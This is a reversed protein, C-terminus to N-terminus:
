EDSNTEDIQRLAELILFQTNGDITKNGPIEAGEHFTYSGSTLAFAAFFASDGKLGTGEAHEIQGERFYLAYRAEGSEIKFPGTLSNSSILQLIDSLMDGQILGGLTSEHQSAVM